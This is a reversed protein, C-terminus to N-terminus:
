IKLKKANVIYLNKLPLAGNRYKRAGSEFLVYLDNGRIAINESMPPMTLPTAAAKGSAGRTYILLKSANNRGCSQSYLVRSKTVVAGQIRDPTSWTYDAKRNLSLDDGSTLKYGRLKGKPGPACQKSGKDEGDMYEGVWLIGDSYTAYSAKHGLAYRTMVVHSYDKKGEITSLPIKYVNKGSAVWLHNKSVALGGVHGTHKKSGSEYLYLTKIRKNTKSSTISISSAQKSKTNGWYHSIIIWKKSPVLALGQPIWEKNGSLGPVVAGKRSIDFFKKYKSSAAEAEGPYAFGILTFILVLSLGISLYRKLGYLRNM